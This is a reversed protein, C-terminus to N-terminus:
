SETPLSIGRVARWATCAISWRTQGTSRAVGILREEERRLYGAVEAESGGAGLIGVIALTFDEYTKPQAADGVAGVTAALALEGDADWRARLTQAIEAVIAPDFAARGHYPPSPM